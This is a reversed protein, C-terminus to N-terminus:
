QGFQKLLVQARAIEEPTAKGAKIKAVLTSAELQTEVPLNSQGQPAIRSPVPPRQPRVEGLDLGPSREQPTVLKELAKPAATAAERPKIGGFEELLLRAKTIERPTAKGRQIKEM